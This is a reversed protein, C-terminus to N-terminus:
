PHAQREPPRITVRAIWIKWGEIEPGFLQPFRAFMWGRYVPDGDRVIEVFAAPNEEEGQVWAEGDWALREACAVLEASFGRPGQVAGEGARLRVRWTKAERTDLFVLEAEGERSAWEPILHVARVGESFADHPDPPPAISLKWPYAPKNPQSCAALWFFLAAWAARFSASLTPNSGM